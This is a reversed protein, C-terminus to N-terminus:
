LMYESNTGRATAAPTYEEKEWIPCKHHWWFTKKGWISVKEIKREEKRRSLYSLLWMLQSQRFGSFWSFNHEQSVFSSESIYLMWFELLTGSIAENILFMARGDFFSYM